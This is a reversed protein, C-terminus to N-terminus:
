VGLAQCEECRLTRCYLRNLHLLGQQQIANLKPKGWNGKQSLQRTMGRTIHNEPLKPYQRYLENTVSNLIGDGTSASYCYFFPLLVNVVMDRARNKGLILKSEADMNVISDEFSYHSQWFVPVDMLLGRELETSLKRLNQPRTQLLKHFYEVLGLKFVKMLIQVLAAIRRTPFNNPRLRFFQWAEPQMPKVKLRKSMGEWLDLMPTVYRIAELSLRQQKERTVPLLGAAGFLLASCRQEAVAENVWQMEAAIMDYQVLQALKEFPRQNKSYGLSKLLMQYLIQEFGVVKMNEEIQDTKDRFRCDGAANIVAFIKDESQKALPCSQVIENEPFKMQKQSVTKYKQINEDSIPIIVQEISVGDEREVYLEKSTESILHLVVNNYKSNKHHLHDRWGKTYLHAEVDGRVLQGEIKLVADKFDPGSDFNLGGAYLVEVQKGSIAKLMTGLVAKEKWLDQLIVEKDQVRLEM